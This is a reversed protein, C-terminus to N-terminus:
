LTASVPIRMIPKEVFGIQLRKDKDAKTSLEMKRMPRNSKEPRSRTRGPSLPILPYLAGGSISPCNFSRGLWVQKLRAPFRSRNLLRVSPWLARLPELALKGVDVSPLVVWVM